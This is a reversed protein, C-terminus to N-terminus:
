QNYHELAYAVGDHNNDLTVFDAAQKIAEEANGMAVGIGALRLMHIDNFSDGFAMIESPAIGLQEGLALLSPGKDIGQPLLEIFYPTSHCVYLHEKTAERIKDEWVVQKDHPGVMLCKNLPRPADRVFDEVGIVQMKNNFASIGVFEDDPHETFIKDEYYTMLTMGSQQQMDHLVPLVEEPLQREVYVEGTACDEVHGGNYCLLIGGHQEMHLLKGLPRMGYPPRGSALVLRAGLSQVKMLADMTRPTIDKKDDTLTGDLDLAILKIM